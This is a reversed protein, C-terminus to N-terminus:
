MPPRQLYRYISIMEDSYVGPKNYIIFPREIRIQCAAAKIGEILVLKAPSDAYSHIFRLRSPAIQQRGMINLVEGLRSPLIILSIIGHVRILYAASALYESLTLAIEHRAIAKGPDPNIRGERVPWYPPNGVVLDFSAPSLQESVKKIDLKLIEITEELGHLSVNERAMFVLEEEIEIGIIKLNKQRQALLLPIIGNGTGLDILREGPKLPVFDALIFPDLSYRYGKEPQIIKLEDM